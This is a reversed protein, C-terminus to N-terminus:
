PNVVRPIVDIRARGADEPGSCPESGGPSTWNVGTRETFRLESTSSVWTVWFHGMGARLEPQAPEASQTPEEHEVLFASMPTAKLRSSRDLVM